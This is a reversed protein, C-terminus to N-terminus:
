EEVNKLASRAEDESVSQMHYKESHYQYARILEEENPGKMYTGDGCDFEKLPM